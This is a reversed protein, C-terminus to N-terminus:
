IDCRQYALREEGNEIHIIGCYQFGNKKLMNQMVVNDRHTDIRVNGCQSVVWNVCFSGIGKTKGDSAIRHIVGYPKDNLWQGEEIVAYTPDDGIRYYFVGAIRGNDVCVYSNGDQMDCEVAGRPPHSDKWQNPNGHEAMFRRAHAYLEMVEEIQEPRTAHIEWVREKQKRDELDEARESRETTGAGIM